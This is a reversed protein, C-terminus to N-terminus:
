YFNLVRTYCVFGASQAFAYKHHYSLEAVCWYTNSEVPKVGSLKKAGCYGISEICSQNIKSVHGVPIGVKNLATLM